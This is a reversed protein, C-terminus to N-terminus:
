SSKSLVLSIIQDVLAEDLNREKVIKTLASRLDEVEFYENLSIGEWALVAELIDLATTISKNPKAPINHATKTKDFSKVLQEAQRVNLQKDIIILAAEEQAVQDLSLLSRAHGMDLTGKELQIRVSEELNLLRLTNTVATRSKGVVNAVEGHTLEFEEQLRKLATAEEIPNLDERQINEVLALALATQDSIERVIAPIHSLGAIQAARWRREGAIIEYQGPETNRVVIPQIVGQAKISDALEQLPEPAFTRRPQFQSRSISKISLSNLEGDAGPTDQKAKQIGGILASLGVNKKNDM